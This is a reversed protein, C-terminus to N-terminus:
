KKISIVGCDSIELPSDPFDAKTLKRILIASSNEEDPRVGKRYVQKFSRINGEIFRGDRGIKVNLVPAYGSIGWTNIKAYTCFNGLSYAILREKYLEIGRLVHPGHGVVLDAGADIVAHSFQYVNGRNEGYLSEVQDKVHQAELGEGGGHFTVIVIDTTDSVSKVLKVSKEIECMNNMGYYPAFGIIAIKLGKREIVAIENKMGTYLIGNQSLVSKTQKLGADGFDRVHNNALTLVDFGADKLVSALYPPTRFAYKCTDTSDKRLMECETFPAELNGFAIDSKLLVSDNDMILAAGNKSPLVTDPFTTGLMIDGVASVSISFEDSSFGNLAFLFIAACLLFSVRKM